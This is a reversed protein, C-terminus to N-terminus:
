GALRCCTSRSTRHTVPRRVPARRHELGSLLPDAPSARTWADSPSRASTSELVDMLPLVFEVAGEATQANAAPM